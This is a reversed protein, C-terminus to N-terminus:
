ANLKNEDIQFSTLHDGEATKNTKLCFPIVKQQQQKVEDLM